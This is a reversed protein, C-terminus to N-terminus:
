PFPRPINGSTRPVASASGANAEASAEAKASKPGWRGYSRGQLKRGPETPGLASALEKIQIAVGLSRPRSGSRLRPLWDGRGLPRPPSPPVPKLAAGPCVPSRPAPFGGRTEASRGEGKAWLSPSFDEWATLTRVRGPGRFPRRALHSRLHWLNEHVLRVRNEGTAIGVGAPEPSCKPRRLDKRPGPGDKAAHDGPLM